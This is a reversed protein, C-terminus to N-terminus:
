QSGLGSADLLWSALRDTPDGSGAPVLSEVPASELSPREALADLQRLEESQQRASLGGIAIRPM